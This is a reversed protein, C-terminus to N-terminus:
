FLADLRLIDISSMLKIVIRRRGYCLAGCLIRELSVADVTTTTNDHNFIHLLWNILSSKIQFHFWQMHRWNFHHLGVWDTDKKPFQSYMCMCIWFAMHILLLLKWSDFFAEFKWCVFSSPCYQYDRVHGLLFWDLQNSGSVKVSTQDDGFKHYFWNRKLGSM